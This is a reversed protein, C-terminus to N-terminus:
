NTSLQQAIASQITDRNAVGREHLVVEGRRNYVVVEPMAYGGVATYFHDRPDLVMVLNNFEPQTATFRAAQEKTEKRNIAMFVVEENAIEDALSDLMQLDTASFPSWSAWTAVVLVKGLYSDLSVANGLMDSYPAEGPANSFVSVAEEVIGHKKDYVVYATGVAAVLAVATLGGLVLKHSKEM